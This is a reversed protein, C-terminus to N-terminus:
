AEDRQPKEGFLNGSFLTREHLCSERKEQFDAQPKEGYSIALFRVREHLCSEYKEAIECPESYNCTGSGTAFRQCILVMSM